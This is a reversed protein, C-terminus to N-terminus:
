SDGGGMVASLKQASVRLGSAARVDMDKTPVAGNFSALAPRVRVGPRSARLVGERVGSRTRDRDSMSDPPGQVSISSSEADISAIHMVGADIFGRADASLVNDSSFILGAPEDSM